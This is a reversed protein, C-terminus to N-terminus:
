HIVIHIINKKQYNQKSCNKMIYDYALSTKYKHTNERCYFNSSDHLNLIKIKPFLQTITYLCASVFQQTGIKRELKDGIICSNKYEIGVIYGSIDNTNNISITVCYYNKGGFSVTASETSDYKTVYLVKCYFKKDFAEIIYKDIRSSM